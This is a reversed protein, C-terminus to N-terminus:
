SIVAVPDCTGFQLLLEGAPSGCLTGDPDSFTASWQCTPPEGTSLQIATTGLIPNHTTFVNGPVGGGGLIDAVRWHNECTDGDVWELDYEITTFPPDQQEAHVTGVPNECGYCDCQPCCACPDDAEDVFAPILGSAGDDILLPAVTTGNDLVVPLVAM